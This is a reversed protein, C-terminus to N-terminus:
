TELCIIRIRNEIEIWDLKYVNPDAKVQEELVVERVPTKIEENAENQAIEDASNVEL